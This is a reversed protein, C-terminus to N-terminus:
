VYRSHINMKWSVRSVTEFTKKWHIIFKEIVVTEMIKLTNCM